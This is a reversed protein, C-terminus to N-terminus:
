HCGSCAGCVSRCFFCSFDGSWHSVVVGVHSNVIYRLPWILCLMSQSDTLFAEKFQINTTLGVGINYM